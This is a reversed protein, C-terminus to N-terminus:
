DLMTPRKYFMLQVALAACVSIYMADQYSPLIPNEGSCERMIRSRMGDVAKSLKKYSANPNEKVYDDFYKKSLDSIKKDIESSLKPLERNRTTSPFYGIEM